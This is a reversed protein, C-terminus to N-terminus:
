NTSIPRGDATVRLSFEDRGTRPGKGTDHITFGNVLVIWNGAAPNPVVVREPSSLTAGPPVGTADVFLTLDPRLVFMDLDNTPYRGWNQQWFLEFVAQSVGAPINVIVPILDDQEIPGTATAPGLKNRVREIAVRASIVGGNTWDGQLALRFLGTQPNDIVFTTDGAVFAGESTAPVNIRHV